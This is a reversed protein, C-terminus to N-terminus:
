HQQLSDALVAQKERVFPDPLGDSTTTRLLPLCNVPLRIKQIKRPLLPSRAQKPPRKTATRQAVATMDTQPITTADIPPDKSTKSEQGELETFTSEGLNQSSPVCHGAGAHSPGVIQSKSEMGQVADDELPHSTEVACPTVVNPEDNSEASAVEPLQVKRRFRSPRQPMGHEVARLFATLRLRGGTFDADNAMAQFTSNTNIMMSEHRRSRSRVYFVQLLSATFDERSTFPLAVTGHPLWSVGPRPLIVARSTASYWRQSRQM